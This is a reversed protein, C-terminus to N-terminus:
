PRGVQSASVPTLFQYDMDYDSKPRIMVQFEPRYNKALFRVVPKRLADEDAPPTRSSGPSQWEKLLQQSYIVCTGPEHTLTEIL